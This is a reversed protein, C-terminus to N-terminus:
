LGIKLALARLTQTVQSDAHHCLLPPSFKQAIFDKVHAEICECYVQETPRDEKRITSKAEFIGNLIAQTLSKPTGQNIRM